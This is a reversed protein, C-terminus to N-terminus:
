NAKPATFATVVSTGRGKGNCAFLLRIIAQFRLNGTSRAQFLLLLFFIKKRNKTSTKSVVAENRHKKNFYKFVAFLIDESGNRPFLVNTPVNSPLGVTLKSAQYSRNLSTNDSEV